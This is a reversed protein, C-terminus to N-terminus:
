ELYGLSRLKEKEADSLARSEAEPGERRDELWRDLLGELEREVPLGRGALNREEAPDAGLDYLYTGDLDRSLGDLRMYRHTATRVMAGLGNSHEAFVARRGRRDAGTLQRLDTGDSPQPELGAAALVTPFLDITQVLGALRRGASPAGPWRILMPVHTTTEWLGIHRFDIGHEGLNEGHDAVLVLLTRELLGRSELYGLLRDIQRDLYAVEGDYLDTQGGLVPQDFTRDDPRRFPIWASVPMLGTAHWPRFGTAYPEPPSHPTHPDFLHLWAFFPPPRDGETGDTARSAARDSRGAIWDMLHDVPLEAAFTHESLLVEDFGQGLGSNHDGLHSASIVAMTEYGAESFAEAMTRHAAPLPTKFDYVGHNKGYLGTLISAFSQNTSNFTSYTELWVDSETALRDIAPTLSPTFVPSPRWPGVRDPRLTDLGLILVNPHRGDGPRWDSWDSWDSPGEVPARDYVAPSGWIVAPPGGGPADPATEGLLVDVQFLIEVRSESFDTLDIEEVSPAWPEVEAAEARFLEHLGGRADRLGIRYLCPCRTGQWGVPVVSLYPARGLEVPWALRTGTRQTLTHIQPGRRFPFAELQNAPVLDMNRVEEAGLYGIEATWPPEVGTVNLEVAAPETATLDLRRWGDPAEFRPEPGCGASCLLAIGLALALLVVRSSTLRLTPMRNWDM